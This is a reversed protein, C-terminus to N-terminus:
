KRPPSCSAVWATRTRPQALNLWCTISTLSIPSCSHVTPSAGLGAKGALDLWIERSRLARDTLPEPVGIPWVLGFNRISAGVARVNREFLVVRHGRGAAAYAHALGAIGAGIVATDARQM